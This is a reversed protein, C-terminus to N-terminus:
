NWLSKDVNGFGCLELFQLIRKTQKNKALNCPMHPIKSGLGPISGMAAANSALLRLWQAVLSTGSAQNLFEVEAM